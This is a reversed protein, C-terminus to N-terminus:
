RSAADAPEGVPESGHAREVAAVKDLRRQHRGGEFPAALWTQLIVTAAESATVRAGLALVNADNHARSLGATYLDTCVAARIGPIKNAAIAIGIGTACVLVGRAARGTMVAEGVAVAFDPYDVPADGHTGMDLVPYGGAGLWSKLHEKLRFGAHDAGLAIVTM